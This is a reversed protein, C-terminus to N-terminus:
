PLTHDKTRKNDNKKEHPDFRSTANVPLVKGRSCAISLHTAPRWISEDYRQTAWSPKEGGGASVLSPGKKKKKKKGRIQYFFLCFFVITSPVFASNWSAGCVSSERQLWDEEEQQKIALFRLFVWGGEKLASPFHTSFFIFLRTPFDRLAICVSLLERGSNFSGPM